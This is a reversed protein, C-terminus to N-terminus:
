SRKGDAKDAMMHALSSLFRGAKRDKKSGGRWSPDRMRYRPVQGRILGVAHYVSSLAADAQVPDGLARWFRDFAERDDSFNGLFALAFGVAETRRGRRAEAELAALAKWRLQDM